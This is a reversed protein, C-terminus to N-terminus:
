VQILCSSLGVRCGHIPDKQKVAATCVHHCGVFQTGDGFININQHDCLFYFFRSFVLNIYLM